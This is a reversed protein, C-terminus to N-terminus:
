EGNEEEEESILGTGFSLLDVIFLVDLEGLLALCCRLGLLSQEFWTKRLEFFRMFIPVPICVVSIFLHILKLRCKLADRHLCPTTGPRVLLLHVEIVLCAPDNMPIGGHRNEVFKVIFLFQLFSDVVVIKLRVYVIMVKEPM